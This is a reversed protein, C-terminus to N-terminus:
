GATNRLDGPRVGAAELAEDRENFYQERVVRGAHITHLAFLPGSVRIGSGTGMATADAIVVLRDGADILEEPRIAVDFLEHIARWVRLWGDHGHHTGDM